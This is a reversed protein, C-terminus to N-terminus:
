FSPFNEATRYKSPTERLYKKFFEIFASNSSFELDNATEGVNRGEALLEISKHLRWQQRWDQYSMGTEKIFIRGITKETVNIERAFEKLLPPKSKGLNWHAVHPKIRQDLPEILTLSERSVSNFEDWFVSIINKQSTWPMEWPWFSIREILEKLLPNVHLIMIQEPSNQFKAADFYISRYAAVNRVIIRHPSGAPIWAAMTPPLLSQRGDTLVTMCGSPAYLLQAKGHQHIGSDHYNFDSAIGIVNAPIVDPNFISDKSIFAM